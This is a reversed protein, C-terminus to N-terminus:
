HCCSAFQQTQLWVVQTQLGVRGQGCPSGQEKLKQGRVQLIPFTMQVVSDVLPHTGIHAMIGPQPDGPLCGRAVASAVDLSWLFLQVLLLGPQGVWWSVDNKKQSFWGTMPIFPSEAKQPEPSIHVFSEKKGPASDCTTCSSSFHQGFCTLILPGSRWELCGGCM